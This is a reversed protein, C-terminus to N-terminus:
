SQPLTRPLSSRLPRWHSAWAPYVLAARALWKQLDAVSPSSQYVVLEEALPGAIVLAAAPVARFEAGIALVEPKWIPNQKLDKVFMTEPRTAAFFKSSAFASTAAIKGVSCLVDAFCRLHAASEIPAVTQLPITVSLSDPPASELVFFLM